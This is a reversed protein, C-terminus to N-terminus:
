YKTSDYDDKVLKYTTVFKEYAIRLGPYRECMLKVKDFDPFCDVFEESKWNFIATNMNNITYGTGGISSITVTGTAGAGTYFYSSGTNSMNITSIDITCEPLVSSVEQAIIGVDNSITTYDLPLLTNSM